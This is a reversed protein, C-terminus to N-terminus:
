SEAPKITWFPNGRRQTAEGLQEGLQKQQKVQAEMAKVHPPYAWSVRGEQRYISFGCVVPLGKEALLGTDVLDDLAELAAELQSQCALVAAKAEAARFLAEAAEQSLSFASPSPESCSDLRDLSPPLSGPMPAAASGFPAAVPTATVAKRAM